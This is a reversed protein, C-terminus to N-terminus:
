PEDLIERVAVTRGTEAARYVAQVCAVDRLGIEGTMEFPTGDRMARAFLLHQLDPSRREEEDFRKLVEPGYYVTQGPAHGAGPYELRGDRYAERAELKLYGDEIAFHGETGYIALGKAPSSYGSEMVLGAGSQFEGAATVVDEGEISHQCYLNKAFGCVRVVEDGLLWQVLNLPHVALQMFSGGGVHAKSARWHNKDQRQLLIRHAARIRVSAIKGLLGRQLMAKLSHYLPENLMTMNVGLRKGTQRAAACLARCESVTPALPKEVLVHKGAQLAELAQAAHLHNPTAIEVLDANSDLVDQWRLTFPADGHERSVKRARAEDIDHILIVRTDPCSQYGPIMSNAFGLGTIAVKVPASM